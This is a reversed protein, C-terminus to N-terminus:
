RGNNEELDKRWFELDLYCRDYEKEKAVEKAFSQLHNNEEKTLSKINKWSLIIGKNEALKILEKANPNDLVVEFFPILHRLKYEESLVTNHTSDFLFLNLAKRAIGWSKSPIAERLLLTQEDLKNLFSQESFVDKFLNFDMKKLFDRTIKITNTPQGRLASAGISTNALRRQFLNVLKNEMVGCVVKRLVIEM